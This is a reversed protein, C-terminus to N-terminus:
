ASMVWLHVARKAQPCTLLHQVSKYGATGTTAAVSTSAGTVTQTPGLSKLAERVWEKVKDETVLCAAQEELLNEMAALKSNVEEIRQDLVVGAVRM